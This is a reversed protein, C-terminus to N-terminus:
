ARCRTSSVCSDSSTSSMGTSWSRGTPWACSTSSTSAVRVDREHHAEV